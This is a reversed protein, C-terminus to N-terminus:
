QTHTTTSGLRRTRQAENGGFHALLVPNNRLRRFGLFHRCQQAGSSHVVTM